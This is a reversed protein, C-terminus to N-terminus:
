LVQSGQKLKLKPNIGIQGSFYKLQEIQIAKKIGSLKM